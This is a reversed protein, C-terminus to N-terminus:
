RRRLTELNFSLQRHHKIALLHVREGSHQYLLVYDGFVARRGGIM